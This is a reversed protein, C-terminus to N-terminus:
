SKQTYAVQIGVTSGAGTTVSLGQGASTEFWGSLSEPLVMIGNAPLAFTASIATGAGGPKTNFTVTTATGGCVVALAHVRLKKSAVAAIVAGDTTSAAVNAFGRIFSAFDSGNDHAVGDACQVNQVYLRGNEDIMLPTYNGNSSAMSAPTKQQVGMIMVGVDNGAFTTDQQKAFHDAGVGTGSHPLGNITWAGSQACGVISGTVDVFSGTADVISGTVDVTGSIGVSWAGSQTAAVTGTIGVNWTGSQTAPVPGTISDVIHHTVHESSAITTKLATTSGNGDLVPLAM